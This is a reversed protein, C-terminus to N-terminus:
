KETQFHFYSFAPITESCKSEDPLDVGIKKDISTSRVYFYYKKDPKLYFTKSTFATETVEAVPDTTPYPMGPDENLTAYYAVANPVKNWSITIESAAITDGPNVTKTGKATRTIATITKPNKVLNPDCGPFYKQAAKTQISNPTTSQRTLYFQGVFGAALLFASVNLILPAFRNKKSHTKATNFQTVDLPTYNKVFPGDM